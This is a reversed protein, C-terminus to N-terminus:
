ENCVIVIIIITSLVGFAVTSFVALVDAVDGVAGLARLLKDVFEGFLFLISFGLPILVVLSLIGGGIMTAKKCTTGCNITIKTEDINIRRPVM